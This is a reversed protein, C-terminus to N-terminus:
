GMKVILRNEEDIDNGDMDVGDITRGWSSISVRHNPPNSRSGPFDGLISAIFRQNLVFSVNSIEHRYDRV